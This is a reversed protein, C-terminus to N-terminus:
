LRLINSDLGSCDYAFNFRITDKDKVLLKSGILKGLFSFFQKSQSKTINLTVIFNEITMTDRENFCYLIAAIGMNTQVSLYSGDATKIPTEILVYHIATNNEIVKSTPSLKTIVKDWEKKFDDTAWITESKVVQANIHRRPILICTFTCGNDLLKKDKFAQEICKLVENKDYISQGKLKSYIHSNFDKIAYGFQDDAPPKSVIKIFTPLWYSRLFTEYKPCYQKIFYSLYPYDNDSDINVTNNRCSKKFSNYEVSLFKSLSNYYENPSDKITRLFDKRLEDLLASYYGMDQIHPGPDLFKVHQFTRKFNSPDFVIKNIKLFNFGFDDDILPNYHKNTEPNVWCHTQPAEKHKRKYAKKWQSHYIKYDIWGKQNNKLLTLLLVSDAFIEKTGMVRFKEKTDPGLFTGFNIFNNWIKIVSDFIGTGSVESIYATFIDIMKKIMLHLLKSRPSSLNDYECIFKAFEVLQYILTENGNVNEILNKKIAEELPIKDYFKTSIFFSIIQAKSYFIPPIKLFSDNQTNKLFNFTDSLLDIKYEFEKMITLVDEFTFNDHQELDKITDSAKQNLIGGLTRHIFICTIRKSSTKHLKKILINIKDVTTPLTHPANTKWLQSLENSLAEQLLIEDGSSKQISSDTQLIM